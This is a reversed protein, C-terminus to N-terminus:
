RPNLGRIIYLLARTTSSSWPSERFPLSRTASRASRPRSTMPRGRAPTTCSTSVPIGAARARALMRAAEAFADEAGELQMVGRRYTNQCDIMILASDQLSAPGDGLGLLGRLTVQSSMAM